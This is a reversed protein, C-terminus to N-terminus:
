IIETGLPLYKYRVVIKFLATVNYINNGIVYKHLPLEEVM